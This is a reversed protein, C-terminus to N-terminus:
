GTGDPCNTLKSTHIDNASLDGKSDYGSLLAAIDSRVIAHSIQGLRPDRACKECLDVGNPTPSDLITIKEKKPQHFSLSPVNLKWTVLRCSFKSKWM